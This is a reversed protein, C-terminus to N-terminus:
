YDRITLEPAPKWEFIKEDPHDWTEASSWEFTLERGKPSYFEVRSPLTSPGQGTFRSYLVKWDPREEKASTAPLERDFHRLELPAMTTPDVWAVKGGGEPRVFRVWYANREGDYRCDISTDPPLGTRSELAEILLEPEVRFPLLKFFRERRATDRNMEEAPFRFVAKERPIYLQAWESNMVLLGVRVGLPGTMEVRARRPSYLALELDLNLGTSQAWARGRM